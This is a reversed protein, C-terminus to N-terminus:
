RDDLAARLDAGSGAPGGPPSLPGGDAQPCQPRDNGLDHILVNRRRSNLISNTGTRSRSCDDAAPRGNNDSISSVPWMLYDFQPRQRWLAVRRVAAASALQKLM